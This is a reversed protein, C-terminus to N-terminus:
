VILDSWIWELFRNTKVEVEEAQTKAEIMRDRHPISQNEQGDVQEFCFYEIPARCCM